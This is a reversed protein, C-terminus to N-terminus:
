SHHVAPLGSLIRKRIVWISILYFLTMLWLRYFILPSTISIIKQLIVPLLGILSFSLIVLVNPQYFKQDRFNKLLLALPFLLLVFHYTASAPLIEFFSIGIIALSLELFESNSGTSKFQRYLKVILIVAISIVGAYIVGRTM